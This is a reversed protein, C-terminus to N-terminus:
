RSRRGAGSSARTWRLLIAAWMSTLSGPVPGEPPSAAGQRPMSAIQRSQELFKRKGSSKVKAKESYTSIEGWGAELRPANRAITVVRSAPIRHGRPNAASRRLHPRVIEQPRSTAADQCGSAPTVNAIARWRAARIMTALFGPAGPLSRILTFVMARPIGPHRPQVQPVQRRCKKRLRAM